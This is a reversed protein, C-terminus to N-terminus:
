TLAVAQSTTGSNIKIIKEKKVSLEKKRDLNIGYYIDESGGHGIKM